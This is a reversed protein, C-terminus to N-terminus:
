MRCCATWLEVISRRVQWWGSFRGDIWIIFYIFIDLFHSFIKKEVRTIERWQFLNGNYKDIDCIRHLYASPRYLAILFDRVILTSVVTVVDAKISVPTTSTTTTTTTTTKTTTTTTTTSSSVIEEPKCKGCSIPCLM